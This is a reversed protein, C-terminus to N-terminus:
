RLSDMFRAKNVDITVFAATIPITHDPATRVPRAAAWAGAAAVGGAPGTGRM